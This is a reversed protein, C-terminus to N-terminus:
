GTLKKKWKELKPKMMKMFLEETMSPYELYIMDLACIIVDIAEGLVGDSGRPKQSYGQQITVETALEGVEEMLAALVEYKTRPLVIKSVEFVEKIM